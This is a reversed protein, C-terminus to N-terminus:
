NSNRYVTDENIIEWKNEKKVAIGTYELVKKEGHLRINFPVTDKKLDDENYSYEYNVIKGIKSLIDKNEKLSSTFNDLFIFNSRKTYYDLVILTGLIFIILFVITKKSM